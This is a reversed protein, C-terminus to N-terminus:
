ELGVMKKMALVEHAGLQRYSGIKLDGLGLSGFSIRLLHRVRHGVTELMRRIMRSRGSTITMRIVSKGSDQNLLTVKSPGIFGDELQFGKRLSNLADDSIRGDVTIKYTKPIHYRPHTLRYSLDGDNTLLLLGLSDFDLRGVPYVRQTLGKLLETVVPRGAPDSLSSIYGFPKNLMLYIRGFPEPIEQGDIKISDKGWTARCGPERVISGNLMIRGARIMDDAKRRSALGALSVIRNIRQEEAPAIRSFKSGPKEKQRRPKKPPHQNM